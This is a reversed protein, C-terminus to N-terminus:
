IHVHWKPAMTWGMVIHLPIFSKYNYYFLILCLDNTELIIRPGLYWMCKLGLGQFLLNKAKQKINKWTSLTSALMGM